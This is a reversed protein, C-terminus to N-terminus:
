CPHRPSRNATLDAHLHQLSGTVVVEDQLVVSTLQTRRQHRLLPIARVFMRRSELETQILTSRLARCRSPAGIRESQKIEADVRPVYSTLTHATAQYASVGPTKIAALVEANAHSQQLQNTILALRNVYRDEPSVAASAPRRSSARPALDPAVPQRQTARPAERHRQLQAKPSRPKDGAGSTGCGLLALASTPLLMAVLGFRTTAKM